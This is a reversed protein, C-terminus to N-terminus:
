SGANRIAAQWGLVRGSHYSPSELPEALFGRRFRRQGPQPVAPDIFVIDCGLDRCTKGHLREFRLSEDFSVRRAESAGIFGLNRLFVVQTQYVNESRVWKM